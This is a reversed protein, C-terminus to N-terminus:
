GTGLCSFSTRLAKKRADMQFRLGWGGIMSESRPVTEMFMQLDCQWRAARKPAAQCSAVIWQRRNRGQDPVFTENLWGALFDGVTKDQKPDPTGASDCGQGKRLPLDQMTLAAAIIEKPTPDLALQAALMLVVFSTM